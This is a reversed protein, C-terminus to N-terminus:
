IEKRFPQMLTSKVCGGWCLTDDYKLIQWLPFKFVVYCENTNKLCYSHLCPKKQIITSVGGTSMPWNAGLSRPYGPDFMWGSTLKRASHLVQLYFMSTYDRHRLPNNYLSLSLYYDECCYFYWRMENLAARCLEPFRPHHKGYTRQGARTWVLVGPFGLSHPHTARQVCRLWLAWAWWACEQNVSLLIGELVILQHSLGKPRIWVYWFPLGLQLM